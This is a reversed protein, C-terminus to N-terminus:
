NPWTLTPLESLFEEVTPMSRQGGKVAAMIGYATMNCADMWQAFATGEAQFPGPYGARLSCTYRDHYRREAAKNDFLEEMKAIYSDVLNTEAIAAEEVSLEVPAYSQTWVGDLLKPNVEVMRHTLPNFAPVETPLIPLMGFNSRLEDTINAPFSVSPNARKMDYDSAPYKVVVNNEILAYIM